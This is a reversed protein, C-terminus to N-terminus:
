LGIKECIRDSIKKMGEDNPHFAEEITSITNKKGDITTVEAGIYSKNEDVVLDSIDVFEMGLNQAIQPMMSLREENVFWMGVLLMKADPSYKKVHNVLETVSSEFTETPVCNDGLQFIVLDQDKVLDEKLNDNIWDTRSKIIRNEEWHIASIRNMNLNKYKEQLREKTLYYYDHYQDSAAMGIGDREITLSNGIVLVNYEEEQELIENNENENSLENQQAIIENESTEIIEEKIFLKEAIFILVVIVLIAFIFKKLINKM